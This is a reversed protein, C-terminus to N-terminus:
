LKIIINRRYLVTLIALWFTVFALGWLLSLFKPELWPVSFLEFSAQHLSMRQGHFDIKFLSDICRAMIGSGVFAVLPNVGYIVFPRSWGRVEALDILWLCTALMVCAFGATFVVYSSTWLNKNIPFIWGWLSGGLMGLCGVAYLAAIREVLPRGRNTVWEGALVGLLVTAIAPITSLPGEPDWTKSSAWIHDKGLIVRDSWAALTQEPHDLTLFGMVGTGPVPILTMVLWYGILIAGIVIIKGRRTTRQAILAGFLYAVGIRQLVGAFRLHQLRWLVRDGFTPNPVTAMKGWWFFPFANLLLGVLVIMLGRRIIRNRIESDTAGRARLGGLSIHTTIGVIFLFFPFVLDTPTWGHWPAHELPSYISEWSGPNNVLLMGAITLGRFADLALLRERKPEVVPAVTSTTAPEADLITSV